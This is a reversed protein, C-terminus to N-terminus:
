GFLKRWNKLVAKSTIDELTDGEEKLPPDTRPANSSKRQMGNARQLRNIRDASDATVTGNKAAQELLADHNRLIYLQDPTIGEDPNRLSRYLERMEEHDDENWVFNGDEMRGFHDGWKEIGEDISTRTQETSREIAAEQDLEDRSVLGMEDILAELNERQGRPMRALLQKRRTDAPNEKPPEKGADELASLRDKLDKNDTGQSANSRQLEKWAEVGGPLQDANQELFALVENRGAPKAVSASDRSIGDGPAKSGLANAPQPPTNGGKGEMASDIQGKVMDAQMQELEDRASVSASAPTLQTM